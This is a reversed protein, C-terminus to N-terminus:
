KSWAKLVTAKELLLEGIDEGVDARSGGVLLVYDGSYGEAAIRGIARAVDDTDQGLIAMVSTGPLIEATPDGDSWRFSPQLIEGLKPIPPPMLAAEGFTKRVYDESFHHKLSTTVRLGYEDYGGEDMKEQIAKITSEGTTWKPPRQAVPKRGAQKVARRDTAQAAAMSKMGPTVKTKVAKDIAEDATVRPATGPHRKRELMQKFKGPLILQDLLYCM